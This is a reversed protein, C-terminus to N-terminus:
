KLIGKLDLSWMMLPPKRRVSVNLWALSWHDEIECAIILWLHLFPDQGIAIDLGQPIINYYSHNYSQSFRHVLYLWGLAIGSFLSRWLSTYHTYLQLGDLRLTVHRESVTLQYESWNVGFWHVGGCVMVSQHQVKM